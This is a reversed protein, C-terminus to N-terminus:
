FKHWCDKCQFQSIVKNAAFPGWLLVSTAKSAGSIAKTNASGCKPCVHVGTPNGCGPCTEAKASLKKGCVKCPIMQYQTAPTKASKANLKNGSFHSKIPTNMKEIAENTLSAISITSEHNAAIGCYPCKGQNNPFISGCKICRVGIEKHGRAKNELSLIQLARDRDITGCNTCFLLKKSYESNCKHCKKTNSM